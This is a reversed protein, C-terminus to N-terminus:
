PVEGGEIVVITGDLPVGTELVRLERESVSFSTDGCTMCILLKPYTFVLPKQLGERGPFHIGVEGNFTSQNESYCKQCAM